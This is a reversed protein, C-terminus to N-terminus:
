IGGSGESGWRRSSCQSTAATPTGATIPMTFGIFIALAILLAQTVDTLLMFLIAKKM